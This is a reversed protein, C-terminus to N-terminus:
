FALTVLPQLDLKAAISTLLSILRNCSVSISYCINASLAPSNNVTIVHVKIILTAWVTPISYVFSATQKVHKGRFM